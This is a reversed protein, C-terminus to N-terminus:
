TEKVCFKQNGTLFAVQRDIWLLNKAKIGVAGSCSNGHRLVECRKLNVFKDADISRIVSSHVTCSRTVSPQPPDPKLSLSTAVFLHTWM